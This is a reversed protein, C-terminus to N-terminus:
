STLSPLIGKYRMLNLQHGLWGRSKISTIPLKILPAGLLPERNSVYLTTRKDLPPSSVTRVEEAYTVLSFVLALIGVGGLKHVWGKRRPVSLRSLTWGAFAGLGALLSCINVGSGM